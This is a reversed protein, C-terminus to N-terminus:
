NTNEIVRIIEGKLLENVSVDFDLKGFLLLDRLSASVTDSVKFELFDELHGFLDQRIIRKRSM